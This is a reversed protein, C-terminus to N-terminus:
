PVNTASLQHISATRNSDLAAMFMGATTNALAVWKYRDGADQQSQAAATEAM